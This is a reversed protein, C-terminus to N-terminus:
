IMLTFQGLISTCSAVYEIFVHMLAGIMDKSQKMKSNLARLKESKRSTGRTVVLLHAGITKTTNHLFQYFEDM